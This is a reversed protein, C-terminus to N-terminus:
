WHGRYFLVVAYDTNIDKPLEVTTGDTATFSVDPFQSMMNLKETM